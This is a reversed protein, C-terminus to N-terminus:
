MNLLYLRGTLTQLYNETKHKRTRETFELFMKTILDHTISCDAYGEMDYPGSFEELLLVKFPSIRCHGANQVYELMKQKYELLHLETIHKLMKNLLFQHKMRKINEALGMSTTSPRLETVLDFLERTM